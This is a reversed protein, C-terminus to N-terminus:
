NNSNTRAETRGSQGNTSGRFPWRVTLCGLNQMFVHLCNFQTTHRDILHNERSHWCGPQTETEGYTMLSHKANTFSKLRMIANVWKHFPTCFDLSSSRFDEYLCHKDGTASSTSDRHAVARRLWLLHVNTGVPCLVGAVIVEKCWILELSTTFM